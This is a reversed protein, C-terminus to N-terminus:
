EEDPEVEGIGQDTIEYVGKARKIVHGSANLMSLRNVIYADSVDRDLSDVIMGPSMRGWPDGADRGILMVRLIKEDITRPRFGEKEPM